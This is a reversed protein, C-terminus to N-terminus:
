ISLYVLLIQRLNNSSPITNHPPTKPSKDEDQQSPIDSRKPQQVECGDEPTLHTFSNNSVMTWPLAFTVSFAFFHVVPPRVYSTSTSVLIDLTSRYQRTSVDHYEKVVLHPCFDSFVEM